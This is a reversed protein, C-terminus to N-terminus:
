HVSSTPSVYNTCITVIFEQYWNEPYNKEPSGTLLLRKCRRNTGDLKISSILFKYAVAEHYARLIVRVQEDKEIDDFYKPKNSVVPSNSRSRSRRRRKDKSSRKSRDRSRSRKRDRRDRRDRSRSRSRSRRRSSKKKKKKSEDDSKPM